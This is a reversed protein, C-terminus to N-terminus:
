KERKKLILLMEFMTDSLRNRRPTLIQGDASFLREVSASSPLITNYQRFVKQILNYNLLSNVTKNKDEFYRLCEMQVVNQKEILNNPNSNKIFSRFFDEDDSSTSSNKEENTGIERRYLKECESLFLTKVLNYEDDSSNLWRLKFKPHSVTAL